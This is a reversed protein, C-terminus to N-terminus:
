HELWGEAYVIRGTVGTLAGPRLPLIMCNDEPAEFPLTIPFRSLPVYGFRPYYDPIGVLVISGFGLASARAHAVDVLQSGVGRGRYEPVVSLPALALTEVSTDGEQIRARTLLIHGAPKGEIEAILSLAPLFADTARLREVMLHERHDSYPVDAYARRVIDEIRPADGSAEARVTIDM